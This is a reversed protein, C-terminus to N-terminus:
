MLPAVTFNVLEQLAIAHRAGLNASLRYTDVHACSTLLYMKHTAKQPGFQSLM